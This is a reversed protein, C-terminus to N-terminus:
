LGSALKVGRSLSNDYSHGGGGGGTGTGGSSGGGASGGADNSCTNTADGDDIHDPNTPDENPPDGSGVPTPTQFGSPDLGMIPNNSCYAYLNIGGAYGIPDTNLWRGYAPDYFRHGCLVLGTETDTYYGAQAGFGFPDGTTDTTYRTGYATYMDVSVTSGSGDLRESVNGREDFMYYTTSGTSATGNHRSILGAVGFTNIATVNGSADMEVTPANGDYLYYTRTTGNDKWARM